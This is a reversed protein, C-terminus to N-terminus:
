NKVEMLILDKIDIFFGLIAFAVLSGGFGIISEIFFTAIKSIWLTTDVLKYYIM